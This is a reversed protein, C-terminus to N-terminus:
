FRGGLFVGAHGPAVAPALRLEGGRFRAANRRRAGAAKEDGSPATAYLVIGGALALAGVGFAITSLTAADQAEQGLDVGKQSCQTPDAGRCNDDAESNKSSAQLGFFTGAGVGLLGVVGVVIGLTRQGSGSETDVGVDAGPPASEPPKEAADPKEPPPEAHPPPAPADELPPVAFTVNGNAPVQVEAKYDRKGPATVSIQHVGPDVPIATGWLASNVEDGDRSIQMGDVRVSEPVEVVLKALKAELREARGRAIKERKADNSKTAFAAAERFTAWASATKGSQEYCEALYLLTGVGPDLRQSEELSRCAADFDKDKLQKKGKDFLAEAAAKDAASSQAHVSGSACSLALVGLM